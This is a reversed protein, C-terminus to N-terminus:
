DHIIIPDYRRPRGNRLFNLSYRLEGQQSPDDTVTLTGTAPDVVPNRIQPDYAQQQPCAGRAVWIPDQAWELNNGGADVHFVIEHPGRGTPIHIAGTPDFYPASAANGPGVGWNDWWLVKRYRVDADIRPPAVTAM